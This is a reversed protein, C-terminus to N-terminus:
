FGNIKTVKKTINKCADTQGCPTDAETCAPIGGGPTSVGGRSCVGGLIKKRKKKARKQM